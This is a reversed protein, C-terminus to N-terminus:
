YSTGLSSLKLIVRWIWQLEALDHAKQHEKLYLLTSSNCILTIQLSFSFFHANNYMKFNKSFYFIKVSSLLRTEPTAAAVSTFPAFHWKAYRDEGSCGIYRGSRIKIWTRKWKVVELSEDQYHGHYITLDEVNFTSSINMNPQLDIVYANSSVKKLIKFSGGSRPHLKKYTCAPFREPKM